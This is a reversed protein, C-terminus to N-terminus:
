RTLSTDITILSVNPSSLLKPSFKQGIKRHEEEIDFKQLCIKIWCAQCRSDFTMLCDGDQACYLQQPRKLFASFFRNCLLCSNQGYIKTINPPRDKIGCIACNLMERNPVQHTSSPPPDRPKSPLNCPKLTNVFKPPAQFMHVVMNTSSLGGIRSQDSNQTTNSNQSPSCVSGTTPTSAFSHDFYYDDFSIPRKKIKRIKEESLKLRPGKLENIIDPSSLPSPSPSISSSCSTSTSGDSSTSAISSVSEPSPPNSYSSTWSAISPSHHDSIDNNNNTTTATTTTTTTNTNTNTNNNNNNFNNRNSVMDISNHAEKRKTEIDQQSLTKFEDRYNGASIEIPETQSPSTSTSASVTTTTTTQAVVTTMLPFRPSSQAQPPPPTKTTPSSSPRDSSTKVENQEHEDINTSVLTMPSTQCDHDDHEPGVQDQTSSVLDQPPSALQEVHKTEINHQQKQRLSQSNHLKRRKTQQKSDPQIVTESSKENDDKFDDKAEHSKSNINCKSSTNIINNTSTQPPIITKENVKIM